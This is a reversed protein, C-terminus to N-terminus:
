VATDDSEEQEETIYKKFVKEIFFSQLTVWLGPLFFVMVPFLMTIVVAAVLIGLLIATTPLHAFAFTAATKHLSWFGHAFRAELPLLWFFIGVPILLSGLYVMSYIAAVSNTKGQEYLFSYGLLLGFALVGWLVTIGIGRLLEAKFVHFFYRYPRGEPGHVCKAVADYLAISSAGITVVPLCCLLWLLCLVLVDAM